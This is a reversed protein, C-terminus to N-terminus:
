LKICAYRVYTRRPDVEVDTSWFGAHALMPELLWTFTSFETRVHTAFESETYGEAPDKVAADFWRSLVEPAELPEFAYALDRLWLLGGTKMVAALRVLALAKWFDPLQHLANRTVVVDVPEGAHVYTLFGARVADVNDVGLRQTRATLQELMPESVDVAIVRRCHPAVALTFTGTGCGMDLVVSSADLGRGRLAEVDGTPDYRQKRDYAAVFNPDLHEPGATDLEDPVFSGGLPAEPFSSTM